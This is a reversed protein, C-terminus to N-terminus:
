GIQLVANFLFLVCLKLIQLMYNILLCNLPFLVESNSMSNEVDMVRDIFWLFIELQERLLCSLVHKRSIVLKYAKFFCLEIM